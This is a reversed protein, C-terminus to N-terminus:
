ALEPRHGLLDFPQLEFVCDCSSVACLVPLWLLREFSRPGFGRVLTHRCHDGFSVNEGIFTATTLRAGAQLNDATQWRLKTWWASM